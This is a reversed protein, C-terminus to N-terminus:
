IGVNEDGHVIKGGIVTLISRIEKLEEDSVTFYDKNLVVIDGLRGVELSGLLQEDAGGLFWQNARTYLHLLEERSIQQGPNIQQGLANKGTTAYYAHIWPNLPAIQMGDAGIGAPIGSALIDKFPPGAQPGTGALYQWGSLNVGGGIKKLRELYTPTIQPVHAVVWRLDQVSNNANISEFAQIQTQFDTGTLSHVELRWGAKAIRQAAENFIPGGAYDTTIFEGIGGTRLMDNGFFKFTNLLRQQVTPVELNDDMHLFNIRLRIIGAEDDYVSLWPLHMSYLDEHAAGDSPTGTAPFGGQDIHTTVGVSVAYAMADYVGRKRDEFTLQKRLALLAKGNNLGSTISGDAEVLPPETLSEFFAKGLSNTTAPGAFSYSVFVPHDPIAQDLEDLTPLRRENFQNPHFGGITTIFSGPPVDNARSRYTSQVDAVSYANELPTHYGPRNGLLVIHNHCDILGPIATHGKLDVISPPRDFNELAATENKGVYVIVGGKIGIVPVTDGRDNM